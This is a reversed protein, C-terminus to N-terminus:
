CAGLGAEAKAPFAVDAYGPKEGTSCCARLIDAPALFKM